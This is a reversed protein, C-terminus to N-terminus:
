SLSFKGKSIMLSSRSDSMFVQEERKKVTTYSTFANRNVCIHRTVGSEVIWNKMNTVM